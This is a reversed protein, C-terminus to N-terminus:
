KEKIKGQLFTRQKTTKKNNNLGHDSSYKSIETFQFEENLQWQSTYTEPRKELDEDLITLIIQTAKPPTINGTKVQYTM